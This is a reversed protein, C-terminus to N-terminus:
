TQHTMVHEHKLQFETPKNNSFTSTLDLLYRLELLKVTFNIQSIGVSLLIDLQLSARAKEM